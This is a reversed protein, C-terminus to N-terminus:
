DSEDSKRLVHNLFFKECYRLAFTEAHQRDPAATWHVNPYKYVWSFHTGMVSRPTTRSEAPPQHIISTYSDEVLFIAYRMSAMRQFEKELNERGHSTSNFLDILSKREIAFIDEYGEVTYDGTRLRKKKVTIYYPVIEKHRNKTVQNQFTWPAGERDDVLITFPAIVFPEEVRRRAM